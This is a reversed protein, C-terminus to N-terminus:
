LPFIIALYNEVFTKAKFCPYVEDNHEFSLLLM